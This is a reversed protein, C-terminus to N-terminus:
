SNRKHCQLTQPEPVFTADLRQHMRIYAAHCRSVPSDPDAGPLPACVLSPPREPAQRQRTSPQIVPPRDLRSRELTLLLEVKEFYPKDIFANVRELIEQRLYALEQLIFNDEGGIIITRDRVGLPQAVDTLMPGMVMSWHEWLRSLLRQDLSENKNLKELYTVLGSEASRMENVRLGTRSKSRFYPRTM